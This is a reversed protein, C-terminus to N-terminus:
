ETVLIIVAKDSLYTSLGKATGDLHIANDICCQCDLYTDERIMLNDIVARSDYETEKWIFKDGLKLESIKVEM